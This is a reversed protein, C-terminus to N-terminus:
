RLAQPGPGIIKRVSRRSRADGEARVEEVVHSTLEAFILSSTVITPRDGLDARPRASGGARASDHSRLHVAASGM